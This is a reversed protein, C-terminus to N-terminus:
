RISIDDSWMFPWLKHSMLWCTMLYTWATRGTSFLKPLEASLFGDQALTAQYLLLITFIRMQQNTWVENIKFFSTKFRINITKSRIMNQPKNGNGKPALIYLSNIWVLRYLFWSIEWILMRKEIDERRFNQPWKETMSHDFSYM